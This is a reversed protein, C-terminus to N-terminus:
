SHDYSSVSDYLSVPYHSLRRSPSLNNLRNVNSDVTQTTKIFLRLWGKANGHSFLYRAHCSDELQCSDVLKGM